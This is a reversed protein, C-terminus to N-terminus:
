GCMLESLSGIVAYRIDSAKTPRIATAAHSAKAHTCLDDLEDRARLVPALLAIKRGDGKTRGHRVIGLDLRGVRRWAFIDLRIPVLLLHFFGDKFNTRQRTAVSPGRDVNKDADHSTLICRGRRADRRGVGDQVAAPALRRLRRFTAIVADKSQDMSDLADNDVRCIGVASIKSGSSAGARYLPTYPPLPDPFDWKKPSSRTSVQWASRQVSATQMRSACRVSACDDFRRISLLIAESPTPLPKLGNASLISVGPSPMTMKRPM